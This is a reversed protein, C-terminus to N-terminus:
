ASGISVPGTLIINYVEEEGKFAFCDSLVADADCAFDPNTKSSIHIGVVSVPQVDGFIYLYIAGDAYRAGKLGDSAPFLVV